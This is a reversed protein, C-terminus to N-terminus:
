QNVALLMVHIGFACLRIISVGVTCQTVLALLIVNNADELLRYNGPVIYSMIIYLLARSIIM